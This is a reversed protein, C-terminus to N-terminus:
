CVEMLHFEWDTCRFQASGKDFTKQSLVAMVAERVDEIYFVDVSIDLAEAFAPLEQIRIPARGRKKAHVSQRSVGMVQAIETDGRELASAVAKLVHGFHAQEMELYRAAQEHYRANTEM